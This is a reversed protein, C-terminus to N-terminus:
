SAAAPIGQYKGDASSYRSTRLSSPKLHVINRHNRPRRRKWCLRRKWCFHSAPERREGVSEAIRQRHRFPIRKQIIHGRAQQGNQTVALSAPSGVVRSEPEFASLPLRVGMGKRASTGSVLADALEAM